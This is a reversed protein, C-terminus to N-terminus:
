SRLQKERLLQDIWQRQADTLLAPRARLGDPPRTTRTTAIM